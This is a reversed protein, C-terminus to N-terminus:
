GPQFRYGKYSFIMGSPTIQELKLGPPLIDGERLLTENVSVLRDKPKKAYAHLSISLKPIEQRISPPLEAMSMVHQEQAMEVPATTGPADAAPKTPAPAAQLKDALNPVPAPEKASNESVAPGAMGSPATQAPTAAALPAAQYHQPTTSPAPFTAPQPQGQQALANQHPAATPETQPTQPETQWPRLWGIAIGACIMALALASSILYPKRQPAVTAAQVTLLTPASHHQRQQDSKKLADLIYSM